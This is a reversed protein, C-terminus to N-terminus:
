FGEKAHGYQRLGFGNEDAEAEYDSAFSATTTDYFILDVSLNFINATQIFVAEEVVEIHRHLFDMAEYM